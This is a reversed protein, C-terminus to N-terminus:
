SKREEKVGFLQLQIGYLTEEFFTFNRNFNEANVNVLPEALAAAATDDLTKWASSGIPPLKLTAKRNNTPLTRKPKTISHAFVKPTRDNNQPTIVEIGTAETVKRTQANSSKVTDFLGRDDSTTLTTDMSNALELDM